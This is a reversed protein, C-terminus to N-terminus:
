AAAEAIADRFVAFSRSRSRTPAIHRGIDTAAQVKALGQRFYGHNQLVREFAEWTGGRVADPDQYVSRSPINASVRPYAACVAPWDGFYWAELEEIAIRTVVQWDPGGAARRSRLGASECIQELRSKLEECEDGDRDVVVVIRYEAPMWTAYGKLRDGIKRLLADKGPYPYIGFTCDASLIGPLCAALFAEMSLEEVHFEFHSAPM